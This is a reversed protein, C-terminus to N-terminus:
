ACVAPESKMSPTRNFNFAKPGAFETRITKQNLPQDPAEAPIANASVVVRAAHM